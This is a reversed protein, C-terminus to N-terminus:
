KRQKKRELINKLKEIHEQIFKIKEEEEKIRQAYYRISDELSTM